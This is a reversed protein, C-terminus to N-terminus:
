APISAVYPSPVSVFRLGSGDPRMLALGTGDTSRRDFLIWEGDPSWRAYAAQGGTPLQRLGTGDVNVIWIGFDSVTKRTFVLQRGDPSLDPWMDAGPLATVLRVGSGDPRAVYLDVLWEKGPEPTHGFAITGSTLVSTAESPPTVGDGGCTILAVAAVSVIAQRFTM